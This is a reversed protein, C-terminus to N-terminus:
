CANPRPLGRQAVLVLLMRHLVIIFSHANQPPRLPQTLPGHVHVGLAPRCEPELRARESPQAVQRGVRDAIGPVAELAQVVQLPQERVVAILVEKLPLSVHEPVACVNLAHLVRHPSTAHFVIFRQMPVINVCPLRRCFDQFHLRVVHQCQPQVDLQQVVEDRAAFRQHEAIQQLATLIKDPKVRSGAPCVLLSHMHLCQARTCMGHQLVVQCFPRLEHNSVVSLHEGIQGIGDFEVRAVGPQEM